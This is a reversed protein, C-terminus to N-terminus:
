DQVRLATHELYLTQWSSRGAGMNIGGLELKPRTGEEWASTIIKNRHINRDRLYTTGNLAKIVLGLPNPEWLLHVGYYSVVIKLLGFVM